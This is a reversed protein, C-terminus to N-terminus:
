LNLFFYINEGFIKKYNNPIKYVDNRIYNEIESLTRFFPLYCYPFPTEGFEPNFENDLTCNKVYEKQDKQEM